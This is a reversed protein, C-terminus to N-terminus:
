QVIIKTNIREGSDNVLVLVYVGSKLNLSKNGGGGTVSFSEQVIEKGMMDIVRMSLNTSKISHIAVNVKGQGNNLIRVSFGRDSKYNVRKIDHYTINGDLDTQSLRYYNTGERPAYDVLHYSGAATSTGAGSVKGLFSFSTGDPSREMTFYKNNQEHSTSWDLLVIDKNLTATFSTLTIPLTGSVNVVFTDEICNGSSLDRAYYTYTGNVANSLTVAQTTAGGNNPWYYTGRWSATLTLPDNTVVNFTQKKKVDKFITFQDSIVPTPATTYSVFKVDLRNSDV